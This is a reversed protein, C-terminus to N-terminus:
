HNKGNDIEKRLENKAKTYETEYKSELESFVKRRNEWISLNMGIENQIFSTANEKMYGFVMSLSHLLSCRLKANDHEHSKIRKNLTSVMTELHNIYDMDDVSQQLGSLDLEDDIEVESQEM